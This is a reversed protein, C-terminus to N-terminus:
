TRHLGLEPLAVGDRRERVRKHKHHRISFVLPASRDPVRRSRELGERNPPIQCTDQDTKPQDFRDGPRSLSYSHSVKGHFDVRQPSGGDLFEYFCEDDMKKEMMKDLERLVTNNKSDRLWRDLVDIRQQLDAPLAGRSVSDYTVYTYEGNKDCMLCGPGSLPLSDYDWCMAIIKAAVEPDPVKEQKAKWSEVRQSVLEEMIQQATLQAPWGEAHFSTDM